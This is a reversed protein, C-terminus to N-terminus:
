AAQLSNLVTKTVDSNYTCFQFAQGLPANRRYTVRLFDQGKKNKIYSTNCANTQAQKMGAFIKAQVTLHKLSTSTIM